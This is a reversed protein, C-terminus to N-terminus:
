RLMNTALSEQMRGIGSLARQSAGFTRQVTIMRVMEQLSDVNSGELQNQRVVVDPAAQLAQPDSTTYLGNGVPTLSDLAAQRASGDKADKPPAYLGLPGWTQGSVPDSITGNPSVSITGPAGKDGLLLIERGDQDLYRMHHRTVLRGQPDLQMDGDRTFFENGKDDRVKLFGTRPKGNEDLPDDLAINFSNGTERTNGQEWAACERYGVVPLKSNLLQFFSSSTPEAVSMRRKFSSTDINALNNAIAAQSDALYKMGRVLAIEGYSAM